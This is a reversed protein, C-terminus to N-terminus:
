QQVDTRPMIRRLIRAIREGGPLAAVDAEEVARWAVASPIYLLVAVAIAALLPLVRGGIMRLVVAYVAVAAAVAIASAAIVRLIRSPSLTEGARSGAYKRMFVLNLATVTAGCLLTSIPAGFAGISSGVLIYESAAKVVTGAIISIIPLSPHGWAQLVANTVTILCSSVVAPALVALLPAAAAIADAQSPYILRLIPDAFVALGLAAPIAAFMTVRFASGLVRTASREDKAAVAASVAPVLSMAVPTILATPLNYLPLALNAYGSYVAVAASHAMGGDTLRATILATDCLGAISTVSANVTIPFALRLMDAAIRRLGVRDASLRYTYSNKANSRRHILKKVALYAAGGAVGTTLGFIAAAATDPADAGGRIAITALGMGLVLKSLSEILQSVATPLMIEHGQFYGRMASSACIFFLTPSIARLAEASGPIEILAAFTDAGIYLVASGVAGIPLLMALSVGFIRDVRRVDGEAKAAATMMSLAVPLGATSLTLLLIYIHYASSFYAMGEIGVLSMMPIKFVLGIVKSILTSASLILMGSMYRRAAAGEGAHSRGTLRDVKKANIDIGDGRKEQDKLKRGGMM